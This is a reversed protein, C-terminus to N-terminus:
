SGSIQGVLPAAALAPVHRDDYLLVAPGGYGIEGLQGKDGIPDHGALARPVRHDDDDAPAREVEGPGIELSHMILVHHMRFNKVIRLPM